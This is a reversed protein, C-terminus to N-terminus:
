EPSPPLSRQRPADRPAAGRFLRKLKHALRRGFLAPAFRVCKGDILTQRGATSITHVGKPYRADWPEIRTVEEEEFETETLRVIHNITLACGYGQSCDQAPRYLKDDYVFPTGGPRSSRIDAKVPNAPHAKWPGLPSGASWVFLNSNLPHDQSTCLLWWRGQWQIVTSDVVAIDRVLTQVFSWSHTEPDLRYLRVERLLWTEPICYVFGDYEFVYPYSMHVGEAMVPELPGFHNGDLWAGQVIRGTNVFDNFEEGILWRKQGDTVCFPDALFHNEKDFSSWQIPPRHQPQLFAHIPTDVVGVNWNESYLIAELQNLIWRSSVRAAYTLMQPNTPALYVPATSRSPEKDLYHACGREIDGVVSAPLHVSASLIADLNKRCSFLDTKVSVRKLVVGGDLRETVRQLIAGTANDGSYVEWFAPPGGRYAREDDHHFSWVGFRAATLIDGRIIGFAFRLIFDLRYNRVTELDQPQFYLSFKGKRIVKCRVRPVNQFVGAMDVPRRAPLASFPRARQYLAWLLGDMRLLKLLKQSASSPRPPDDDVILLALEASGTALVRSIVAAQWQELEDSGCMVAFRLKGGNMM